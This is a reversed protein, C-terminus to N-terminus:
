KSQYLIIFGDDTGVIIKGASLAPASLSDCPKDSWLTKGDALSLLSLTGGATVVVTNGAVVPSTPSDQTRSAWIIKGDARNLCYLFEDASGVLVRDTTLAPTTFVENSAIQHIWLPKFTTTDACFVSGDRTGGYARTGAMATGGAMPGHDAFNIKAVTAGTLPAIFHLASDCAGFVILNNGAAPSGDSRGEPKSAWIVRGTSLELRFLSGSSRSIALASFGNTGEPELWNIAGYIDEGIKINWRLAGTAAEFAYIVGRDTGALLCNNVYVPPTSFLEQQPIQPLTSSWRKVGEMSLAIAEGRDSLAYIVGNFVIPPQSIPAGVKFRWGVSLPPKIPTPSIGRLGSDGHYTPWNSFEPLPAAPCTLCSTLFAFALIQVSPRLSRLPPPVLSSESKKM